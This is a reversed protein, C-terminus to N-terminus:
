SSTKRKLLSMLADFGQNSLVSGLEARQTTILSVGEAIVDFIIFKEIGNPDQRMMYNIHIDGAADTGNVIVTQVFYEGPRIEKANLVKVVNGTYKRFNPVYMGTLYKSYLDLFAEQQEPKISRWYQGLSFKGIWRTDVNKLFIANLKQEKVKESLDQQRVLEIVRSALDNVYNIADKTTAHATNALCLFVLFLKINKNLNLFM